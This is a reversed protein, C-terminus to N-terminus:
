KLYRERIWVDLFINYVQYVGRNHTLPGKDRQGQRLHIPSQRVRDHHISRNLECHKVNHIPRKIM